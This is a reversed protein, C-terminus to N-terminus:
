TRTGGTRPATAAAVAAMARDTAAATRVLAEDDPPDPPVLAALAEAADTRTRSAAIRALEPAPTGAPVGLRDALVRQARRALVAAAQRRHGAVQHLNAVAVVLESGPVAAPQVEHVPRGLRRGRWLIAVGFALVLEGAAVRTGPPLVDLIGKGRPDAAGVEGADAAFDSLVVVRTGPRPALLAVALGANGKKALNENVWLGAGGLAVVTGRGLPTAVLFDGDGDGFCGVAGAERSKRDYVLAGAADVSRIGTLAPVAECRDTLVDAGGAGTVPSFLPQVMGLPSSPDTVVLTGGSEVWSRVAARRDDGLTDRLLVATSRDSSPPRASVAVDAGSPAGAAPESLLLVLARAGLPGTGSPDLPQGKGAPRGAALVLLLVGVTIGLVLGVRARRSLRGASLVLPATM